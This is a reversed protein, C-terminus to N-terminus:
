FQRIAIVPQLTGKGYLDDAQCLDYSVVRAEAYSNSQDGFGKEELQENYVKWAVGYLISNLNKSYDGAENSAWYQADPNYGDSIAADPHHALNECLVAAELGSPLYWDDYGNLELDYCVKAAYVGEGYTDVIIATNEMGNASGKGTNFVRINEANSPHWPYEEEFAATAAILGHFEGEVFRDDGPQFIYFVYGGGFFEGIEPTHCGSANVASGTPTEPCADLDDTIGDADSDKQSLACGNEDVNENAPTQPCLDLTDPVGDADIDNDNTSNEQPQAERDNLFQDMETESGCSFHMAMLCALLLIRMMKM